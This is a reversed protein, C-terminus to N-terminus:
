KKGGNGMNTDTVGRDWLYKKFTNAVDATKLEATASKGIAMCISRHIKWAEETHEPAKNKHYTAVAQRAVQYDNGTLRGDGDCDGNTWASVVLPDPRGEVIIECSTPEVTAAIGSASTASGAFSVPLTRSWGESEGPLSRVTFRFNVISTQEDIKTKNTLLKLKDVDYTPTITLTEWLIEGVITVFVRVTVEQNEQALAGKANLTVVAREKPEILPINVYLEPIEVAHGNIDLATGTFLISAMRGSLEAQLMKFTYTVRCPNEGEQTMSGYELVEADHFYTMELTSWDVNSNTDFSLVLTVDGTEEITLTEVGMVVTEPELPQTIVFVAPEEQYRVTVAHNEHKLAAGTITVHAGGEVEAKAEFRLKLFAGAGSLITGATSTVTWVGNEADVSSSLTLGESLPTTEVTKPMLKEKDYALTLTLAQSGLGSANDISLVADFTQGAYVEGGPLTVMVAGLTATVAESPRSEFVEPTSNGATWLCSLATVCYAYINATLGTDRYTPLSTTQLQGFADSASSARYVHYGYVRSQRNPNWDLLVNDYGATARLNSPAGVGPDTLLLVHGDATGCLMDMDGDSDWDVPALTLGEAFGVYTGGWVRHQLTYADGELTYLSIRGQADAVLLDATADSTVDAFAAATPSEAPTSVTLAALTTFGNANDWLPYGTLDTATLTDANLDYSWLAGGNDGFAVQHGNGCLVPREMKALAAALTPYANSIVEFNPNGQAGVNKYLTLGEAQTYVLFDFCNDHNIDLVAVAVAGTLPLGGELDGTLPNVTAFFATLRNNMLAMEGMDFPQLNTELLPGDGYTVGGLVLTNVFHPNMGYQLEEALTFGDGDTDTDMTVDSEPGYWYAIARQEDTMADSTFHAIATQGADLTGSGVLTVYDLARGFVDAQHKGNITWYAFDVHNAYSPTDLTEGPRLYGTTEESPTRIVYPSYAHPNYQLLASDGYTVGGLVLDNPFHPNMGYQLEEAFTFGDGDTDSDATQATGYWYRSLREEENEFCHAVVEVMRNPMMFSAQNLAVGFADEQRVGDVTWYAFATTTPSYSSTTVATGPECIVWETEFLAGEPESRLLYPTYENPNYLLEESDGYTVGGLVLNNPFHPNMGYQLEEAFTFGDNDTDSTMEVSTDGYWYRKEANDGAVEYNAILTVEQDKPIVSVQEYARGWVDRVVFNPQKPQSTWEVFRYGDVKPATVTTFTADTSAYTDEALTNGLSDVQRVTVQATENALVTLEQAWGLMAGIAVLVTFVARGRAKM